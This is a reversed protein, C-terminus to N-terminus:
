HPKSEQLGSLIKSNIENRKDPSDNTGYNLNIHNLDAILLVIFDCLRLKSFKLDKDLNDSIVIIKNKDFYFELLRISIEENTEERIKNYFIKYSHNDSFISFASFHDDIFLLDKSLRIDSYIQGPFFLYFGVLFKFVARM